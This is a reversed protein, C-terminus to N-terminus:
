FTYLANLFLGAGTSKDVLPSNRAARATLSTLRVGGGLSVQQTWQWNLGWQVTVSRLGGGAEHEAFSSRAAQEATVGYRAMMDNRDSWTAFAAGTMTLDDGLPLATDVGADLYATHGLDRGGYERDRLAQIGRVFLRYPQLNLSLELGAQGTGALDGMGRLHDNHGSLTRIDERCGPDYNGLLAVGFTDGVPLDWRLGEPFSASFTGWSATPAVAKVLPLLTTTYASAGDYVPATLTGAGLSFSPADDQALAALPMLLLGAALRAATRCSGSRASSSVSKM